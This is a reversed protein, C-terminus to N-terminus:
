NAAASLVYEAARVAGDADLANAPPPESEAALDVARALADPSLAEADVRRVLGHREFLRARMSQEVHRGDSFPVVVARVRAQVVDLLTNYGAQSISVRCRGLLALFDARNREM